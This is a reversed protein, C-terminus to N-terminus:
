PERATTGVPKAYHAFNHRMQRHKLALL